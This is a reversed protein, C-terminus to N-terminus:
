ACKNVNTKRSEEVKIEQWAGFTKNVLWECHTWVLHWWWFDGWIYVNQLMKNNCSNRVFFNFRIECWSLFIAVKLWLNTCMGQGKYTQKNFIKTYKNTRQVLFSLTTSGAGNLVDKFRNWLIRCIKRWFLRRFHSLLWIGDPRALTHVSHAEKEGSCKWVSSMDFQGLPRIECFIKQWFFNM